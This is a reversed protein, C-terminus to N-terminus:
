SKRTALYKRIGVESFRLTKRSLRRTFPLQDAHRYLWRVTVGLIGVAQEPTLLRDSVSAEPVSIRNPVRCLHSALTAQLSALEAFVSIADDRPMAAVLAPNALLERLDPM